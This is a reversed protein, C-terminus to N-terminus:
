DYGPDYLRAVAIMISNRAAAGEDRLASAVAGDDGMFRGMLWSPVVSVPDFEEIKAIAERLVDLREQAGAPLPDQRLEATSSFGLCYALLRNGMIERERKLTIETDTM